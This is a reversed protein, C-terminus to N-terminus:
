SHPIQFRNVCIITGCHVTEKEVAVLRKLEDNERWLSKIKGVAHEHQDILSAVRNKLNKLETDHRNVCDSLGHGRLREEPKDEVEAEWDGGTNQKTEDTGASAPEPAPSPTAATTAAKICKNQVGAPAQIPVVGPPHRKSCSSTASASNSMVAVPGKLEAWDVSSCYNTHSWLAQLFKDDDSYKM